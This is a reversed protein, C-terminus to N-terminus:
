VLKLCQTNFSDGERCAVADLLAQKKQTSRSSELEYMTTLNFLVSEHLYLAPDQQVLGELQGLSEKLRGLYLLCVAANNNAVPNKPDIKLVELFSSHAESYNNQSLYVFARNMLVCTIHILDSGKMQCSKEVDLFYREATRVDGIQLFIRGIGSLLQVRQQPEYQIISHYTEVALVYDKMLLLCNAMSYMVRSLRSRWLKLSAQRNEQSLTIMSGDEALSKELNELIALCITKLNHLRDLAEQPKALYQPLEAHLLRMSFPVMSGRRGPYIHPYYEYYLDPQELNGFPEFELEANQFLNLKTLLALRVFWLQLSDTTHSTPQDAKGYGQGHATLLQGTLDVAARWNKSSILQELGTFSQEVSNATLVQRKMAAQEGLFRIMLDKVADGQLNDFKLGPMTLRPTEVYAPSYQQTAVSILVKRTEECPLWADYRRDVESLSLATAFPDDSGSFVSQLQNFPQAQSASKSVPALTPSPVTHPPPSQPKTTPETSAPGFVSIPTPAGSDLLGGPTSVSSSTSSLQSETTFGIPAPTAEPPVEANPNSVSIFSSPATFSDFFDSAPNTQGNDTFFKSLSPSPQCVLPATVKSPTMAEDSAGSSGMTFSPSKILTPQFGDPALSKPQTGQSFITCVPVPEEKPSIEKTSHLEPEESRIVSPTLTEGHSSVSAPIEEQTDMEEEKTDEKSGDKDQQDEPVRIETTNQGIESDEEKNGSSVNDEEGGDLYSDIPAVDDEESNNPSDSIMVSEMMQDNLRDILSESPTASSDEQPTVFERGGLDISDQQHLTNDKSPTHSTTTEAPEPVPAEKNVDEVTIGLTVPRQAHAEGTDM